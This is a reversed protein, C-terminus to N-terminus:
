DHRNAAGWMQHLRLRSQVQQISISCTLFSLIFVATNRHKSACHCLELDVLRSPLLHSVLYLCLRVAPKKKLQVHHCVQLIPLIMVLLPMRLNSMFTGKSKHQSQSLLHYSQRRTWQAVPFSKVLLEMKGEWGESVVSSTETSWKKGEKRREQWLLLHLGWRELNVLGAQTKTSGM